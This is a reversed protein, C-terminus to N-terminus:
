FRSPGFTGGIPPIPAPVLTDLVTKPNPVIRVMDIYGLSERHRSLDAILGDVKDAEYAADEDPDLEIDTVAVLIRRVGTAGVELEVWVTLVHPSTIPM